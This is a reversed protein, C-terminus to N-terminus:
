VQDFRPFHTESRRKPLIRPSSGEESCVSKIRAAENQTGVGSFIGPTFIPNHCRMLLKTPCFFPIYEILSIFLLKFVIVGFIFPCILNFTFRDLLMSFTSTNGKLLLIKNLPKLVLINNLCGLLLVFHLCRFNKVM